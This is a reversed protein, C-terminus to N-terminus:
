GSQSSLLGDLNAQVWPLPANPGPRGANYDYTMVSFGAVHPALSAFHQASFPAPAGPQQQQAPVPPPM